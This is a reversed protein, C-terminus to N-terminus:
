AAGSRPEVFSYPPLPGTVKLRLRPRDAQIRDLAASLPGTVERGALLSLGAPWGDVAVVDEGLPALEGRLYEADRARREEVARAVLEGLRLRDQYSGGGAARNAANRERVAPDERLIDRLLADEDHEAKVHYESRGDLAALRERYHDARDALVGRLTEEDQSLSGFRLPLVPGCEAARTLVRQHAVLDRRKARPAEACESVLAVLGAHEVTRVPRPPDGIGTVEEPM